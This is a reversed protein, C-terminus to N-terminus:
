NKSRDFHGSVSQKAYPLVDKRNTLLLLCVKKVKKVSRNKPRDQESTWLIIGIKQNDLGTLHNKESKDLISTLRDTESVQGYSLVSKRITL